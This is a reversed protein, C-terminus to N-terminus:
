ENRAISANAWMSVEELKTLAVARERSPPCDYLILVALNRATNRIAGYRDPQNDKPSHYTFNNQLRQLDEETPQYKPPTPAPEGGAPAVGSGINAEQMPGRRETAAPSRGRSDPQILRHHWNDRPESLNNVKCFRDALEAVVSADHKAGLEVGHVLSTLYAAFGFVAESGTLEEM